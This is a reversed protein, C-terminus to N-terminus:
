IYKNYFEPIGDKLCGIGELRKRVSSIWKNARHINRVTKYSYQKSEDIYLKGCVTFSFIEYFSRDGNIIYDVIKTYDNESLLDHDM